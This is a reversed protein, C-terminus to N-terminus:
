RKRHPDFRMDIVPFAFANNGTPFLMMADGSPRSGFFLNDKGNWFDVAGTYFDYIGGEIRFMPGEGKVRTMGSFLMPYFPNSPQRESAPMVQAELTVHFGPGVYLGALGDIQPLGSPLAPWTAGKVLEVTGVRGFTRSYWDLIIMGKRWERVVGFAEEQAGEIVMGGETYLWPRGEFKYLIKEVSNQSGFYLEALPSIYLQRPSHPRDQHYYARVDLKVAQYQNSHEHHLYGLYQGAVDNAEPTGVIAPYSERPLKFTRRSYPPEDGATVFSFPAALDVTQRLRCEGCTIGRNDVSCTLNTPSGHLVLSGTYFDFNGEDFATVKRLGLMDGSLKAKGLSGRIQMQSFPDRATGEPGLSRHTALQLVILERNCQGRYEGSLRDVFEGSRLNASLRKLFHDGHGEDPPEGSNSNGDGDCPDGPMCSDGPEDPPETSIPPLEYSRLFNVEFSGSAGSSSSRFEGMLMEGHVMVNSLVVDQDAVDFTLTKGVPDFLVTDYEFGVYEHSNFPGVVLKLIAKLKPYQLEDQAYLLDLVGRIKRNTGEVRFDGYYRGMNLQINHDGHGGGHDGGGHQASATVSLVLAILAAFLQLRM